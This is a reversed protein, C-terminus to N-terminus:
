TREYLWSRGRIKAVNNRDRCGCQKLIRAVRQKEKLGQRALDMGIAERLCQSSTFVFGSPREAVKEELWERVRPEWVDDDRRAEQEPMVLHADADAIWWEEHAKYRDLAEAWLQDRDREIGDVDIRTVAVPWFRRNGTTDRLYGAGDPNITGFFACRRPRSVTNRAYAPRYRDSIRSLFAKVANADAQSLKDMEPIEILWCGQVLEAGEKSRVDGVQDSYFEAGALARVGASKKIGQPGDWIMMTDVKSGPEVARAIGSILFKAGILQTYPTLDAGAYTALWRDIRPEGDWKLDEVYDRLPDFTNRHAIERIISAVISITPTLGHWSLWAALFTEDHDALERPYGDPKEGPLARTVIMRDAFANYRFMGILEPHFEVMLKSNVLTTPKLMADDKWVWPHGQMWDKPASAPEPKPKEPNTVVLQPRTQPQPRYPDGAGKTMASRVKKEIEHATWPERGPQNRMQHAAAMVATFAENPDIQGGASVSGIRLAKASLTVEQQGFPANSIEPLVERMVARGYATTSQSHVAKLHPMNEPRGKINHRVESLLWPPAGPPPGDDPPVEWRYAGEPRASPPLIFYGSKGDRAGLADLGPAFRIRRPVDGDTPWAFVHHRGGKPTISIPHPPLPGHKAVLAALTEEGFEGTEKDVDCDLVWIGSTADTVCGLNREHWESRGTWWRRIVDPDTSADLFGNRTAPVKLGPQVPFIKWGRAAFSLAANLLPLEPWGM